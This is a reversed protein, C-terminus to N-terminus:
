TLGALVDQSLCPIGRQYVKIPQVLDKGDSAFIANFIRSYDVLTQGRFFIKHNIKKLNCIITELLNILISLNDNNLNVKIKSVKFETCSKDCNM